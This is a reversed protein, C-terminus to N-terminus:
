NIVVRSAKSTHLTKMFPDQFLYTSFLVANLQFMFRKLRMGQLKPNSLTTRRLVSFASWTEVELVKVLRDLLVGRSKAQNLITQLTTVCPM